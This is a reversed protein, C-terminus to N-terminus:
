EMFPPLANEAGHPASVIPLDGQQRRPQAHGGVEQGVQGPVPLDEPVLELAQQRLIQRGLPLPEAAAGHHGLGNRGQVRPDELGEQPGDGVALPHPEPVAGGVPVLGEPFLVRIGPPHEEPGM